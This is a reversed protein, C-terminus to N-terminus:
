LEALLSQCGITSLDADVVLRQILVRDHAASRRGLSRHLLHLAELLGSPLDTLGLQIEGQVAALAVHELWHGVYGAHTAEILDILPGVDLVM